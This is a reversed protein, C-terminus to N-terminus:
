RCIQRTKTLVNKNTLKALAASRSTRVGKAAELLTRRGVLIDAVLDPKEAQLVVLASKVLSRSSGTCLAAATITDIGLAHERLLSAAVFAQLAYNPKPSRGACYRAKRNVYTQIVCM